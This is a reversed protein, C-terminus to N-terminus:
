RAEMVNEGKLPHSDTVVSRRRKWARWATKANAANGFWYIVKLARLSHWIPTRRFIDGALLSILAEKVRLPNRPHLLLQRMVPNTMRYIFWSFDRPGKKMTHEFAQRLSKAQPKGDLTAEVLEVAAFGSHMALYVGSSFVPDIFAFADGLMAFRDGTCRTSTYSYNGTAWVRDGVLTAGELRAALKPAMAITDNLFEKLPKSRSNLYYPWCVAGVSTTGDKLPIFWFWGHEFWYISINGEACGEYRKANHFHAFLASSAHKPNKRKTELRQSLFTDRGSADIVYRARWHRSEGQDLDGRVTAGDEDFSVERIRCGEVTTAGQAAANRFLIDDLDSRRVQWAYPMSKDWAEAFQIAGKSDSDNAIFEAGWKQLGVSEVQDRVGLQDFLEANAPLLSEGIHFRPHHAKEVLVVSRGKRALLAAVTSGAPGGGIVLVDCSTSSAGVQSPQVATPSSRSTEFSETARTM